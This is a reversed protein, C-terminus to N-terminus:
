RALSNKFPNEAFAAYIYTGGSANEGGNSSRIKFGNATFDFKGFSTSEAASSSPLLEGDVLNFANSRLNDYIGWNNGSTNTRKILIMAPRFGTYVFPGDTSGNGTYSGFKSYGEVDAFCYALMSNGSSNTGDYSTTFTILSSSPTCFGSAAATAETTNLLLYNSTPSSISQHYVIWSTALNRRRFIVMAPTVGLGHGVSAGNTGNGTYTVISFGSTPNASVTSTISGDTNSVGAGNAKWNWAVMSDGSANLQYVNSGLTFGDSTFASLEGGTLEANTGNTLLMNGVGRVADYLNHNRINTRSKGWVFDPQFGVGTISQGTGNGTYLVANFYESGDVITSDPLNGTHLPLFGAPPTYAFPRQGFNIYGVQSTGSTGSSQVSKWTSSASSPLSISGQSSGNKYFTITGGDVDLAIGVVDGSTFTAGYTSSVNNLWKSGNNNYYLVSGSTFANPFTSNLSSYTADIIGIFTNSGSSSIFEWYYKGSSVAITGCCSRSGTATTGLKLNGETLTGSSNDLPNWTAYNGGDAYPTPTDTVTSNTTIGGNPQWDNNNGSDDLWYAYERTDKFAMYIFTAGSSNWSGDYSPGLQFGTDTFTIWENTRDEAGTTNAFLRVDQPAVPDRTNDAIIWDGTASVRKVMVFAPKWGTTITPGSTSGNGTYSGFKSYGAVESFCYMVYDNGSANLVTSNGISVTTSTPATNNWAVGGGAEVASTANLRLYNDSTFSLSSTGVVWFGTGNRQKIIVMSPAVSLGHGVTANAGTGTYTVVSFGYTPNARVSSTISGDTNSVTSSGADWCWAVYSGGSANGGGDSGLTFGDTDFSQLRTAGTSEANTLDSFLTKTAGRVSDYLQHSATSDRRKYWVFDPSFGVGGIKQTSGTGIYTVTNFGEVTNDLQMPLYFGNTGYTGTYKVPKWVGTVSDFEGFSSPDLAQGDIFNVETLYGDFFRDSPSSGIYHPNATNVAVQLGSSVSGSARAQSVNNVYVVCRNTETANDSDFVLVIHYWASVDRYVPTSTFLNPAGSEVLITNGTTFVLNFNAVGDAARLLVQDEGTSLSGRKVWASWTWTKRNGASAPTWSLYSSQSANFRLSEEITFGGQGSAGALINSGIVSM